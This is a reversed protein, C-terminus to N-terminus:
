LQVLASYLRVIPFDRYDISGLSETRINSAM